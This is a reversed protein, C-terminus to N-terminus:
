NNIYYFTYLTGNVSNIEIYWNDKNLYYYAISIALENPLYSLLVNVYNLYQIEEASCSTLLLLILIIAIAKKM